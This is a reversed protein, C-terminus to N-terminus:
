VNLGNKLTDPMSKVIQISSFMREYEDKLKSIPTNITLVDSKAIKVGTQFEESYELFPLFNMVPGRETPQMITQVPHKLYLSDDGKDEVDAMLTQTTRFTILQIAM